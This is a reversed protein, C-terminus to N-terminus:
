APEAPRRAAYLREAARQIAGVAEPGRLEKRHAAAASRQQEAIKQIKDKQKEMSGNCLRNLAEQMRAQPVTTPSEVSIYKDILKQHRQAHSGRAELRAAELTSDELRAVAVLPPWRDPPKSLRENLEEQGYVTLGEWRM